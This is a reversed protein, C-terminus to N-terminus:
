DLSLHADRATAGADSVGVPEPDTTDLDHWKPFTAVVIDDLRPRYDAWRRSDLAWTRYEKQPGEILM